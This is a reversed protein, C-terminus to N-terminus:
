RLLAIQDEDRSPFIFLEQLQFLYSFKSGSGVLFVGQFSRFAVELPSLRKGVIGDGSGQTKRISGPTNFFNSFIGFPSALLIRWTVLSM